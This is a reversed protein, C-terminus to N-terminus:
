SQKTFFSFKVISFSYVCHPNMLSSWPPKEKGKELRKHGGKGAQNKALYKVALGIIAKVDEKKEEGPFQVHQFKLKAADNRIYCHM